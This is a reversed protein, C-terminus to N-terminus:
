DWTTIKYGNHIDTCRNEAEKMFEDKLIKEFDDM